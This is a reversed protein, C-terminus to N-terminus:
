LIAYDAAAISHIIATDYVPIDIESESVLLGLETCGFVCAKAGKKM